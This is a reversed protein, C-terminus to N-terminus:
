QRLQIPHRFQILKKEFEEILISFLELEDSESISRRNKQMLFYIRELAKENENETRIPKKM